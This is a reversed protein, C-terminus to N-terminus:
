RRCADELEVVDNKVLAGEGCGNSVFPVRERDDLVLLLVVLNMLFFM